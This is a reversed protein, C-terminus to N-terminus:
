VIRIGTKRIEYVMPDVTNKFDKPTFGHPEIRLDVKRRLKWLLSSNVNENRKLKESVVAVDIDSWKGAKGKAHSGFLYIASFPYNEEKLKQAYQEVIKRAETKSM